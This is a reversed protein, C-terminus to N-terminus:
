RVARKLEDLRLRGEAQRRARGTRSGASPAAASRETPRCGGRQRPSRRATTWSRGRHSSSPTRAVRDSSRSASRRSSTRFGASRARGRWCRLGTAGSSFSGLRRSRATASCPCRLAHRRRSSSLTSSPRRETPSCCGFRSARSRRPHPSKWRLRGAPPASRQSSCPTPERRGGPSRAKPFSRGHGHARSRRLRAALVRGGGLSQVSGSVSRGWRVVLEDAPSVGRVFVGVPDGGVRYWGVRPRADALLALLPNGGTARRTEGIPVLPRISDPTPIAADDAIGCSDNRPVLSAIAQRPATWGESVAADAAMATLTVLMVALAVFPILFSEPMRLRHTFGLLLVVVLAAVTALVYLREDDYWRLRGLDLPGWQNLGMAAWLSVSGVAITAIVFRRARNTRWTVLRETEFGIAIAALALFAGFHWIWKSPTFALLMLGLAISASPLCESLTRRKGASRQIALMAVALGLLVVFERRVVTGGSTTLFSYREYEHLVGNSHGTGPRRMIRITEDRTAVDSDLFALLMAWALGILLVAVLGVLSVSTRARADRWFRRGCVLIPAVAIVGAPHATLALGALLLAVVLPGLRPQEVYLLCCVLVGVVLLAITPEARLTMGFAMAGLAYTLAAAWWAPDSRSPGRGLLRAVCWRSVAWTALLVVVMPLRALALSSSNAVLFHQLWEFWTALPLNSGYDEYYNSFGGSTLSNTERARVWGDDFQLPALLWWLGVVAMVVADQIALRPRRLRGRRWRRLGPVLVLVAAALLVATLLRLVTQAASPRTDQVHARAAVELADSSRLDLDTFFGTIIPAAELTGRRLVVGDRAITWDSEDFDVDLACSAGETPADLRALQRTGVRVTTRGDPSSTIALGGAEGPRRTTAFLLTRRDSETGACPVRVQLQEAHQRALLLPSYWGGTPAVSPREAPPWTYTAREDIAPGRAAFTATAVAALALVLALATRRDTMPLRPEVSAPTERDPPPATATPM